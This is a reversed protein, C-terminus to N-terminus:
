SIGAQLYRDALGTISPSKMSILSGDASVDLSSSNTKRKSCTLNKGGSPMTDAARQARPDPLGQVTTEHAQWM